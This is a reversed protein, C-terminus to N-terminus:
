PGVIILDAYEPNYYDRRIISLSGEMEPYKEQEFGQADTKFKVVGDIIDLKTQDTPGVLYLNKNALMVDKVIQLNHGKIDYTIDEDYQLTDPNIIGFKIEDKTVFFVQMDRTIRQNEDANVIKVFGDSKSMITLAPDCIYKSYVPSRLCKQVRNVSDKRTIVLVRSGDFHFSVLQGDALGTASDYETSYFGGDQLGGRDRVLRFRSKSSASHNEWIYLITDVGKDYELDDIMIKLDKTLTQSEVKQTITLPDLRIKVETDIPYVLISNNKDTCVVYVKGRRESKTSAKISHCQVDDMLDVLTTNDVAGNHRDFSAFLIKNSDCVFAYDGETLGQSYSSCKSYNLAIESPSGQPQFTSVKILNAMPDDKVDSTADFKINNGTTFIDLEFSHVDGAM